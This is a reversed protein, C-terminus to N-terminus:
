AAFSPSMIVVKPQSACVWGAPPAISGLTVPPHKTGRTVKQPLNIGSVRRRTDSELELRKSVFQAGSCAESRLLLLHIIFGLHRRAM